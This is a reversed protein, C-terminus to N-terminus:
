NEEAPLRVPLLGTAVIDTVRLSGGERRLSVELTDPAYGQGEGVFAAFGAPLSALPPPANTTAFAYRWDAFAYRNTTGFDDAVRLGGVAKRRPHHIVLEEGPLPTGFLRNTPVFASGYAEALLNLTTHIPKPDNVDDVDFAVLAANELANTLGQCKGDFTKEVEALSAASPLQQLFADLRLPAYWNKSAMLKRQLGRHWPYRGQTRLTWADVTRRASASGPLSWKPFGASAIWAGPDMSDAFPVPRRRHDDFEAFAAQITPKQSLDGKDFLEIAAAEDHFARLATVVKGLNASVPLRRVTPFAYEASVDLGARNGEPFDVKRVVANSAVLPASASDFLNSLAARAADAADEDHSESTRWRVSLVLGRVFADDTGAWDAPKDAMRLTFGLPELPPIPREALAEVVAAALNTAPVSSWVLRLYPMLEAQRATASDWSAQLKFAKQALQQYPPVKQGKEDTYGISVIQHFTPQRAVSVAWAAIFAALAAMSVLTAFATRRRARRRQYHRSTYELVYPM